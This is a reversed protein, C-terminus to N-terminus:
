PKGDSIRILRTKSARSTQTAAASERAAWALAAAVKRGAQVDGLQLPMVMEPHKEESLGEEGLFFVSSSEPSPASQLRRRATPPPRRPAAM